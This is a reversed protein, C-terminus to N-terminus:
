GSLGLRARHTGGVGTQRSLHHRSTRPFLGRVRHLPVAALPRWQSARQRASQEAGALRSLCVRHPSLLADLQGRYPPPPHAPAPPRSRCPLPRHPPRQLRRAPRASVCPVPLSTRCVRSRKPSPLVSASPSAPRPQCPLRPRAEGPGASLCCSSSGS